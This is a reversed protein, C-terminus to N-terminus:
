GILEGVPKAVNALARDSNSSCPRPVIRRTGRCGELLDNNFRLKKAVVQLLREATRVGQRSSRLRDSFALVM